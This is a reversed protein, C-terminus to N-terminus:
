RFLTTEENDFVSHTLTLIDTVSPAQSLRHTQPDIFCPTSTDIMWTKSGVIHLTGNYGGKNNQFLMIVLSKRGQIYKRSTSLLRSKFAIRNFVITYLRCNNKLSVLFNKTSCTILCKTFSWCSSLGFYEIVYVCLCARAYM